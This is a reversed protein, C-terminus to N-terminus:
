GPGEACQPFAREAVPAPGIPNPKPFAALVRLCSVPGRRECESERELPVFSGEM